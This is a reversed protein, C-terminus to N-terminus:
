VPRALVERHSECPVWEGMDTDWGAVVHVCGCPWRTNGYATAAYGSREHQRQNVIEAGPGLRANLADRHMNM